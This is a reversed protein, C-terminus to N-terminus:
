AGHPRYPRSGQLLEAGITIPGPMVKARCILTSELKTELDMEKFYTNSPFLPLHIRVLCCQWTACLMM